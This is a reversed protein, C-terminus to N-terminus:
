LQFFDFQLMAKTFFVVCLSSVIVFEPLKWRSFFTNGLPPCLFLTQWYKSPKTKSVHHDAVAFNTAHFLALFCLGSFFYQLTEPAMTWFSIRASFWLRNEKEIERQIHTNLSGGAAYITCWSTRVGGNWGFILRKRNTSWRSLGNFNILQTSWTQTDYLSLGAAYITYKGVFM